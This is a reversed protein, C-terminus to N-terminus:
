SFIKLFSFNFGTFAYVGYVFISIFIIGLVLLKNM